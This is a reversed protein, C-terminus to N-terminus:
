LTYPVLFEKILKISEPFVLFYILYSEQLEQIKAAATTRAVMM